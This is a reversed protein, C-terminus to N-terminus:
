VHFFLGTFCELISFPTTTPYKKTMKEELSQTQLLFQRLRISEQKTIGKDFAEFISFVKTPPFNQAGCVDLIIRKMM